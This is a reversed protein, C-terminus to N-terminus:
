RTGAAFSRMLRILGDVEAPGLDPYALMRQRKGDVERSLGERVTARMADDKAAGQWAPTRMDPISMARGMPSDADGRSGHCMACREQWLTEAASASAAPATPAAARGEDNGGLMAVVERRDPGDPALAVYRELSARKKAADGLSGALMGRLYWADALDPHQRVVAETRALGEQAKGESALLSAETLLAIPEEPAIQLAREVFQHAQEPRAAQMMLEAGRLLAAVDNPNEDLRAMLAKVESHAQAGLEQADAQDTAGRPTEGIRNFALYALAAVVFVVMTVLAGQLRPHAALFGPALSPKPAAASGTARAEKARLEDIAKLAAVGEAELARKDTEYAAEDLSSRQAELDKLLAVIAEKRSTLDDEDRGAPASAQDSRRTLAVAFLAAVVGVAAAVLGPFWTLLADSV